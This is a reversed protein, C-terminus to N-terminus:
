DSSEEDDTWYGGERPRVSVDGALVRQRGAATEVILAGDDAIDVARGTMEEGSRVGIVRVEHGLTLSYRRWEAFVPGFGQTKITAYLDDMARLVAQLFAVRPVPEGKAEMLSTAKDRVDEPFDQEAINANIGIGIVIYNVRDLEASLETLIGVMKRGKHLVDNPWKIGGPVGFERMARVVAVSAFLTCKPAEQPLFDPRLIVSFWIGTPPCFFHRELRGRGGTQEDAVVITGDPTAEADRDAMGRATVNTSGITEYSYIKCGITQTGLDHKIESALLRDPTEQLSYGSRPQSVISYGAARLERIHKWVATRTVGLREAIEEGSIFKQGAQRLMELVRNESDTRM